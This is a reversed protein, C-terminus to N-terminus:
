RGAMPSCAQGPDHWTADLLAMEADAPDDRLSAFFLRSLRM